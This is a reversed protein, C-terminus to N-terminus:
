RDDAPESPNSGKARWRRVESLLGTVAGILGTVAVTGAIMINPDLM